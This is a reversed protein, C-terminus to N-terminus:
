GLRIDSPTVDFPQVLLAFQYADVERGMRQILELNHQVVQAVSTTVFQCVSGAQCVTLIDDQPANDGVYPRSEGLISLGKADHRQLVIVTRAFQREETFLPALM